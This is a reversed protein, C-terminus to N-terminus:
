NNQLRQYKDMELIGLMAELKEKKLTQQFAKTDKWSCKNKPFWLAIADKSDKLIDNQMVTIWAYMRLLSTTRITGDRGRMTIYTSKIPKNKKLSKTLKIPKVYLHDRALDRAFFGYNLDKWVDGNTDVFYVSSIYSYSPIDSVRLVYRQHSDTNM